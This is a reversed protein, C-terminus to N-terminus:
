NCGQRRRTDIISLIKWGEEQRVLTMANVGCHSFEENRHFRYNMWASALPGDQQIILGSIQEDWVDQRPGGASQVFAQAPSSRVVVEGEPNMM